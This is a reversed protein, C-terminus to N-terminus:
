HKDKEIKPPADVSGLFKIRVSNMIINFDSQYFQNELEITIKKSELDTVCSIVGKRKMVYNQIQLAKEADVNSLYTYSFSNTPKSVLTRHNVFRNFKIGQSPKLDDSMGAFLFISTLIIVTSLILKKM